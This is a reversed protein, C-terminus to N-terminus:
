YLGGVAEGRRPLNLFGGRGAVLGRGSVGQCRMEGAGSGISPEKKRDTRADRPPLSLLPLSVGRRAGRPCRAATGFGRKPFGPSSRYRRASSEFALGLGDRGDLGLIRPYIYGWCTPIAPVFRSPSSWTDSIRPSDSLCRRLPPNREHACRWLAHPRRTRLGTAPLASSTTRPPEPPAGELGLHQAVVPSEPRNQTFCGAFGSSERWPRHAIGRLSNLGKVSDCAEPASAPM